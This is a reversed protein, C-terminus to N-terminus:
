LPRRCRTAGGSAPSSRDRLLLKVLLEAGALVLLKAGELPVRAAGVRFMPTNAEPPKMGLESPWSLLWGLLGVPLM